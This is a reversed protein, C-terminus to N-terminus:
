NKVNGEHLKQCNMSGDNCQFEVVKRVVTLYGQKSVKNWNEYLIRADDQKIDLRKTFRETSTEITILFFESNADYTGLTVTVDSSPIQERHLRALEIQDAAISEKLLKLRHESVTVDLKGIREKTCQM